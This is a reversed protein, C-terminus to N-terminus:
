FAVGVGFRGYVQGDTLEGLEAGSNEGLVIVRRDQVGLGADVFVQDTVDYSVHGDVLLGLWDSVGVLRGNVDGQITLPGIRAGIEGGFGLGQVYLSQFDTSGQEFSGTFYLIDGGHYGARAGVWFHNEGVVFPYRGRADLSVNILGDSVTGSFIDATMSWSSASFQGDFGAYPVVWGEVAVEGGQPAARKQGNEGGVAIIAPLLVTNDPLPAQQYRYSSTLYAARVRYGTLEEENGTGPDPVPDPTPDPAVQDPGGDGWAGGGEAVGSIPIRAFTAVDGSGVSVKLQGVATPPVRVVAQYKGGGLETVADVQGGQNAIVDFSLGGVGLGQADQANILLTIKGGAAVTNTESRVEVRSLAGAQTSAADTSGAVTSEAGERPVRLPVVLGRWAETLAVGESDGSFPVDTGAIAPPGQLFAVLSTRNGARARVRVLGTGRGSTYYVQGVGGENTRVTPQISGDGTEISLKVDTDPVPFGFEDVAVITLRTAATGDNPVVETQPFVLVHALPNGTVPNRVTAVMDVSSGPSASFDVRYDGNRLDQVGGKISAGTVSLVLERRDLGQGNAGLVKAFVRLGTAGKVLEEPQARLTVTQPRAPVLRVELTDSQVSSGTLSATIEATAATNSARPTFQAEYIGDGVHRPQTVTGGTAAFTVNALPDPKGEPTFVAVRVPVPTSGNAPIARRTPLVSLRPTEPVRLDIKDEVTQGGRVEIKTAQQVGPPVIVPVRASGAANAQVPGYERGGIRLVVNANAQAQVPYDTKGSLPVAIAGYVQDPNRLDAVTILSLQPYNVRPAVFRATFRGGGLHTLNQLEGSSTRVMLDDATVDGAAGELVFSVSGEADQGLVLQPPNASVMLGTATPPRVPVKYRANVSARSPTRGKVEFLASTTSTVQPATYTFAYVGPRVESWGEVDGLSVSPKLRLGTMPQGDPSLALVHMTVPTQGDGIIDGAPVIEVLGPEAFVAPGSQAHSPVPTLLGAAGGPVVLALALVLPRMSHM